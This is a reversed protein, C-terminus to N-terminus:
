YIHQIFPNTFSSQSTLARDGREVEPGTICCCLARVFHQGLVTCAGAELAIMRFLCSEKLAKGLSLHETIAVAVDDDVVFILM